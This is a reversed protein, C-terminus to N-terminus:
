QHTNTFHGLEEMKEINTQAKVGIIPPIKEREMDNLKHKTIALLRHVSLYRQADIRDVHCEWGSAGCGGQEIM